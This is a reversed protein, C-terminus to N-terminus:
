LTSAAPNAIVPTTFANCAATSMGAADKVTSPMASQSREKALSAAHAYDVEEHRQGEGQAAGGHPGEDARGAGALEVIEFGGRVSDEVVVLRARGVRSLQHIGM